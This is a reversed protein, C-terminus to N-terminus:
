NQLEDEAIKVALNAIDNSLPRDEILPSVNERVQSVLSQTAPSFGSEVIDVGEAVAIALISLIKAAEGVQRAALRAAITGLSVVDQNAGNTSISHISAPGAGSRMEALVATATVQAGMLGSSLGAEGRCLFPPLGGNLREDTLRALQREALGALMVLAISLADSAHGVHCGMFNGGHLAAPGDTPFIPNDTASLLEQAVITNHYSLADRVAGLVQPVCRISYADQHPQTDSGGASNPELRQASAPEAVLRRSGEAAALLARMTAAQGPHRRASSFAPHWAERRGSLLEAYGVSLHEAWRVLRAARDANLVAIGTMASTGNVLALGDRAELRLWPLGTSARVRDPSVASGDIAIFGGEGTLSLALHALPTLDGSAGVTGQEPIRPAFPSALLAQMLLVAEPSAGSLGHSLSVLRALLVARAEAWPLCRGLGTALHSILNRQLTEAEAARVLRNALPGFGTTVGYILRGDRVAQLLRKHGARIRAHSQDTLTAHAGRAIANAASLNPCGEIPDIAMVQQQTVSSQMCDGKRCIEGAVDTVFDYSCLM